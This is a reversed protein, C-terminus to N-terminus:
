WHYIVSFSAGRRTYLAGRDEDYGTVELSIRDAVPLVIGGQITRSSVRTVDQTAVIREGSTGFSGSAFIQLRNTPRWTLRSSLTIAGTEPIYYLKETLWLNFPLFLTLGPSLLHIDDTKYSLYRYGFSAEFMTLVPHLLGLGQFAEGAVSYKPSFDPNITGQAALYGWARRWLPSYGETSLVTDHFGFRSIPEIRAVVTQAGISKSVEFLIDREDRIGRSYSFQGYGVKLYDRFPLRITADRLGLPAQPSAELATTIDRMRAAVAEDGTLQYLRAYQQIAEQTAGSWFLTDALGRLAERNTRDQRLVAQYHQIASEYQKQWSLVRALGIQVDLDSPHRTLIDRYLSVAQDFQGDRALVRALNGRTEDDAPSDTLIQQYAIIAQGYAGTQEWAQAQALREARDQTTFRPAVAPPPNGSSPKAGKISAIREAIASDHVIAYAREYFPLAQESRGEWLLLDGLGQLAEAHRPDEQLIGEYLQQAEKRETQWSLVRALATRVDLDTPHRHVIERYLSTAEAHSGQWSLLRALAARIDDNEPDQGLLTRYTDIAENYRQAQEFQKAQELSSRLVAEDTAYVPQSGVMCLMVAFSWLTPLRPANLAFRAATRITTMKDRSHWTAPCIM